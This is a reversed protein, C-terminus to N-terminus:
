QNWSLSLSPGTTMEALWTTRSTKVMLLMYTAVEYEYEIYQYCLKLMLYTMKRTAKEPPIMKMIPVSFTAWDNLTWNRKLDM